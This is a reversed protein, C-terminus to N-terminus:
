HKSLPVLFATKWHDKEDKYNDHTVVENGGVETFDFEFGELLFTLRKTRQKWKMLLQRILIMLENRIPEGLKKRQTVNTITMKLCLIFPDLGVASLDLYSWTNIKFIGGITRRLKFLEVNM